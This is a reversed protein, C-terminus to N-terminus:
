YLNRHVRKAKVAQSWADGRGNQECLTQIIEEGNGLQDKEGCIYIHAESALWEVLRDAREHLLDALCREPQDLTFLTDLHRLAGQAAFKQIDLQYLFDEEAREEQFILWTDRKNDQRAIAELFARFPAVGTANAILILPTSADDPLRFRKNHHPYLRIFEGPQARLLYCSGVGPRERGNMNYRFDKVTIHLEDDDTTIANALDYLRPQLPRLCDVFAQAAMRGPHARLLDLLQVGRLYQRQAKSDEAARDLLEASGTCQAWATLFAGSPITLDLHERAAEVFPMAKNNLTIPEDGSLEAADLLAAVLEPPNEPLVGVADGPELQLSGPEILLELHHIRKAKTPHSLCVNDLVEVHLPNQKTPVESVTPKAINPAVDSASESTQLQGVVAEMWQQAPKDYDVDCDVRPALRTAGLAELRQDLYKGATCFHEYSSDGLSLVSFTTNALKPLNDAALADFFGTAPEPPDGDGHTSCIVLLYELRALARPKLDAISKVSHDIRRQQLQASLSQALAECNGTESGYAICLEGIGKTKPTEAAQETGRAVLFGSLWLCQRSDLKELMTQVHRWQEQSFLESASSPISPLLTMAAM